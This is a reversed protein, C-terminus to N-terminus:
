WLVDWFLRYDQSSTTPTERSGGRKGQQGSYGVRSHAGGSGDGMLSHRKEIYVQIEKEVTERLERAEEWQWM